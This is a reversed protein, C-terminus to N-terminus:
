NFTIEGIARLTPEANIACRDFRDWYGANAECEVSNKLLLSIFALHLHANTSSGTNGCIGIQQGATVNEGSSVTLQRMHCYQIMLDDTGDDDTDHFVKVNIGCDNDDVTHSVVKGAYISHISPLNSDDCGLDLAAHFERVKKIPHIRWEFGGSLNTGYIEIGTNIPLAMNGNVIIPPNYNYLVGSVLNTAVSGYAMELYSNYKEIVEEILTKVAAENSINLVDSRKFFTPLYVKNFVDVSIIKTEIVDKEIYLDEKCAPKVVGDIGILEKVYTLTYKIPEKDAPPTKEECTFTVNTAVMGKSMDLLLNYSPFTKVKGSVYDEEIINEDTFNASKSDDHDSVTTATMTLLAGDLQLNSNPYEATIAKQVAIIRPNASDVLEGFGSDMNLLSQDMGLVPLILIVPLLMFLFIIAFFFCGNGAFATLLLAKLKMGAIKELMNGM